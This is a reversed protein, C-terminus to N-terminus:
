RTVLGEAKKHCDTCGVPLELEQHCGICRIHYAAKLAPIDRTPHPENEHCSICPPPRTGVPSNHHCGACLLETSAHFRRALRSDRVLEDLKRVMKGHPLSSPGYEEAMRDIRLSEPFDDSFPPLEALEVPEFVPPPLAGPEGEPRAEATDGGEAPPGAEATPEPTAPGRHCLLCTREAPARTIAHHCSACQGVRANQRHCGVCSHESSALHFAAEIPVGGGEPKGALSHCTSCSSLTQHHCTSCSRGTPEHVQHHFPVRNSRAGPAKIWLVDQQGRMLRPVEAPREYAAQRAADHCGLCDAPGSKGGEAATAMHCRICGRHSANRLSLKREEDAAGHCDACASEQGKAYVLKETQEDFVHHCAECKDGASKLHRHHLSYDLRIERWGPEPAPRGAHCGACFGEPGTQRGDAARERHCGICRDHYLNMLEDADAPYVAAGLRYVLGGEAHDPHCATCGESQLAAEHKGHNFEVAPRRLEGYPDPLRLTLTSGDITRATEPAEGCSCGALLLGLLCPLIHNFTSLQFKLARARDGSEVKSKRSEVRPEASCRAPDTQSPAESSCMKTEGRM